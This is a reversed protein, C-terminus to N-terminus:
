RQSLFAGMKAVVFFVTRRFVTIQGFSKQTCKSKLTHLYKKSILTFYRIKQFGYQGIQLMFFKFRNLPNKKSRIFEAPTFDSGCLFGYDASNWFAVEM